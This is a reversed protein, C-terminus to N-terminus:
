ALGGDRWFLRYTREESGSRPPSRVSTITTPSDFSFHLQKPSVPDAISFMGDTFDKLGTVANSNLRLIAQDTADGAVTWDFSTGPNSTCSNRQLTPPSMRRSM